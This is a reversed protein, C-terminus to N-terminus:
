FPLPANAVLSINLFPVQDQGLSWYKVNEGLCRSVTADFSRDSGQRGGIQFAIQRKVVRVVIARAGRDQVPCIRWSSM